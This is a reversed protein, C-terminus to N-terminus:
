DPCSLRVQFDSMKPFKRGFGRLASVTSDGSAVKRSRTTSKIWLAGNHAMRM